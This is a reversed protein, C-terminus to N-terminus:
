AQTMSVLFTGTEGLTNRAVVDGINRTKGIEEWGEAFTEPKYVRESLLPNTLAQSFADMAVLRGILPPLASRTRVDEAFLGVFYEIRDVRGYLDRLAKQRASDGTIQDFATVRPFGAYERYDNYSRLRAARALEISPREAEDILYRPTNFLGIEGAPQRSADDMSQGLGREILLQNNFLTDVLPIRREGMRIEDPILGHWRYLLNFEVTMWNTRYWKEGYFGSPEARQFHFPTIHNIYEEIVIKLLMAIVTGRATQYLREDDWDPHRAELLRALRNHERLFLVNFMVYGIQNNAREVGMAFRHRMRDPQAQLLMLEHSLLGLEDQVPQFEPRVRLAGDVIDFYYPPFEKGDLLQSKLRGGRKERLASRVAETRGYLPSLDIDHNSTNRFREHINAPDKPKPFTRLFGDTFWQAFHSFLM